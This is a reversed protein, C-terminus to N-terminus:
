VPIRWGMGVNVGLPWSRTNKTTRGGAGVIYAYTRGAGSNYLETREDSTLVRKWFRVPGILGDWTRTVATNGNGIQFAGTSDWVGASHATTDATGANVAIGIQNATADHWCIVQYWTGSSTNGFNNATVGVNPDVGNPNISFGFRQGVDQDILLNYEPKGFEGNPSKGLILRYNNNSEWKCWAEFTFDIDGTSLDTNDAITFYEDTAEEFDRATSYVLGTGTTVTNTDTLDNAGHSDIANGSAEDLEWAAILNDSLAM